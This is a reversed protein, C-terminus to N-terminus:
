QLQPLLLLLLSQQRPHYSYGLTIQKKSDGGSCVGGWKRISIYTPIITLGVGLKIM